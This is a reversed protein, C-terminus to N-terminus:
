TGSPPQILARQGCGWQREPQAPHGAHEVTCNCGALAARRQEPRVFMGTASQYRVTMTHSCRPCKLQKRWEAKGVKEWAAADVAERWSDATIADYPEDGM